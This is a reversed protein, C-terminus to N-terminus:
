VSPFDFSNLELTSILLIYIRAVSYNVLKQVLNDFM